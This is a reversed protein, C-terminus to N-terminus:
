PKATRQTTQTTQAPVPNGASDLGSLTDQRGERRDEREDRKGEVHDSIAGVLGSPHGEYDKGTLKKHIAQLKLVDDTNM